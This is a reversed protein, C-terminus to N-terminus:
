SFSYFTGMFEIEVSNVGSMDLGNNESSNVNIHWSTFPGIQAYDAEQDIEFASSLSENTQLNYTLLKTCPSHSFNYLTNSQDVISEDGTHTINVRLKDDSTKVGNIWVNYDDLRINCMGVFPSQSLTTDKRVPPIKIFMDYQKTGDASIRPNKFNDLIFKNASIKIGDKIPPKPFQQSNSGFTEVAKTFQSILNMSATNLVASNINNLSIGILPNTESLSWFKFSKTALYLTEMINSRAIYYIQSMFPALQPMAEDQMQDLAQDNFYNIKEQEAVIAEQSKVLLNAMANYNLIQNNRAIVMNIYSDYSAKIEDLNSPFKSYFKNYLDQMFGQENAILKNAGPDDPQLSGNDLQSYAESLNNLGSNISKVKNVIYDKNITDGNDDTIETNSNYMFSAEHVLWMCSSEPAFALSSLHELLDKPNFNTASEITDIFPNLKSTLVTKVQPLMDQYRQIVSATEFIMSKLSDVNAKLTSITIAHATRASEIQNIGSQAKALNDYFTIYNEEIVKFNNIQADLSDKYLKYSGMPVYNCTHGYYDLGQSIQNLYKVSQNYVDIFSGISNAAQIQMESNKYLTSLPSSDTLSKFVSTRNKIRNLLAVTDSVSSPNNIPDSNYYSMKAKELLMATQNPHAFMFTPPLSEVIDALCINKTGDKGDKGNKGNEKGQGYIGGHGKSVDINQNILDYHSSIKVNLENAIDILCNQVDKLSAQSNNLLNLIKNNIDTLVTDKSIFSSFEKLSSLSASLNNSNYIESLKGVFIKYSDICYLQISGGNGGNGGDGGNVGNNSLSGEQGNGGNGGALTFKTSVDLLKETYINLTGGNTGDGGTQSPHTPDLNPTAVETGINGCLSINTNTSNLFSSSITANKVNFNESITVNEAYILVDDNAHDSGFLTNTGIDFDDETSLVIIKEGGGQKPYKLIQLNEQNQTFTGITCSENSSPNSKELLITNEINKM